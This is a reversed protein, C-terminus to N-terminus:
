RSLSRLIADMEKVPIQGPASAEAESAFTVASGFTAGSIRSIVGLKGMSMTILPVECAKYMRETASLLTLVDRESQPMVALKVIDAGTAEMRKMRAVLVDEGETKEFDHHSIVTACHGAAEKVLGVAEQEGVSYEIDLLDAFGAHIVKENLTAYAQVNLDALGGEVCRRCTFLLPIGAASLVKKLEAGTQLVADICLSEEDKCIDMYDVRWEAIQAPAALENAQSLVEEASRGTIPVCIKPRGEGITLDGVTIWKKKM